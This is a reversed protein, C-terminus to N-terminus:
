GTRYYPRINPQLFLRAGDSEGMEADALVKDAQQIVAGMVTPDVPLIFCLEKALQWCIADVWHTPIDLETRLTNVETIEIHCWAEIIDYTAADSANPWLYLTPSVTREFYYSTAPRSRLSEKTTQQAWENINFQTMPILSYFTSVAATSITGVLTLFKVSSIVRYIKVDFWYWKGAEYSASDVSLIDDFTVGDTSTSITIADTFSTGAKFGVKASTSPSTVDWRYGGIITSLTGNGVSNNLYNIAPIRLTNDPLTYRNVGPIVGMLHKTTKWLNLGRNALGILCLSMADLSSQLIEPTQM